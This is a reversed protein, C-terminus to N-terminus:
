TRCPRHAARTPAVHVVDMGGVSRKLYEAALHVISGIGASGYSYKGPNNKVLGVASHIARWIM